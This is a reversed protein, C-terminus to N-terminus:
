RACGTSCAKPLLRGGSAVGRARNAAGMSFVDRIACLYLKGEGTLHEFLHTLWLQNPADATFVRKVLDEPTETGPRGTQRAAEQRKRHREGGVKLPAPCPGANAGVAVLEGQGSAGILIRM